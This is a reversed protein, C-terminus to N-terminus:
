GMRQIGRMAYWYCDYGWNCFFQEFGGNNTDVYLKWLAAIEREDQELGNWDGSCKYVLNANFTISYDDWRLGPSKENDM